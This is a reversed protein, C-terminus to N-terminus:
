ASERALVQALEDCLMRAVYLQQTPPKPAASDLYSRIAARALEAMSRNETHSREGLRKYLDESVRLTVQRADARAAPM